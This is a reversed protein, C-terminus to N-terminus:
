CHDSAETLLSSLGPLFKENTTSLLFGLKRLPGGATSQVQVVCQQMEKLCMFRIFAHVSWCRRSRYFALFHPKEVSAPYNRTTM